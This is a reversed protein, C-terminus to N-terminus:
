NEADEETASQQEVQTSTQSAYLSLSLLISFSLNLIEFSSLVDLGTM